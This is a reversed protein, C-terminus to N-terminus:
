KKLPHYNRGAAEYGSNKFFELFNLRLPHVFAGLAAMAINLTHGIVVILVFPLWLTPNSGDGLVMTGINNFAMGLMSGALGLAYLRLYSLVDGLLGTATNYTNWLGVGVNALKNRQMDNFVFIGLASVIGLVIVVWKTLDKDMIGAFALAAVIVGGVILLTWGWSGLANIFGKNKTEQYTKVCMALCLHVVGVILALVMTGDYGAIKAPLFIGKIPEFISWTSIDMSFFTHFLFGIVTTGIGLLVVLPAMDKFSDVKKLLLGVLILILGYGCDGMCFAFFLLFFVSIFPTPDFGDYSPRGYMDTLTEFQRVFWNNRFSIPPNDEVVAADKLYYVGTQDLAATVTDDKETPAYGVLTVITDEAAPVAAAGALYLDLKAYLRSRKEELEPIRDKASAIRKLVREFHSKKDRLEKEKSAIDTTPAPVEGPLTDPGAVVFLIESKTHAIEKLAYEQAWEPKYAKSSLKHFHVPVGAQALEELIGNDFNGWLRLESVEKELQKIEVTDDSYRMLMGGALRVIDGDIFERETGEPIDAKQLGQILGDLLEIEAKINHSTDDIPKISRTIDVLGVEQLRELLDGQEGNLLIFSYKTMPTIM